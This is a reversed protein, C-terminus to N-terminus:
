IIPWVPCIGRDVNRKIHWEIDLKSMDGDVQWEKSKVRSKDGIFQWEQGTMTGYLFMHYRDIVNVHCDQSIKFCLVKKNAVWQCVRILGIRVKM